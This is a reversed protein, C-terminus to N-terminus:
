RRHGEFTAPASPRIADSPAHERRALVVFPLAAVQAAAGLVYSTAYGWVDAARGLAPQLVVGGSSGMLSDFSLVTAREESPILGNLFAQRVPLTAAFLLGSVILLGVAVWFSATLGIAALLAANALVAAALVSTRRRFLRRLHPVTFGGVIQAGAVIAAALGAVGYARRDGHLELLFPQM